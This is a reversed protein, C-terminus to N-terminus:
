AANKRAAQRKKNATFKTAVAAVADREDHLPPVPAGKSALFQRYLTETVVSVDEGTGACYVKIARKVAPNLSLNLKEKDTDAKMESVGHAYVGLYTFRFQM